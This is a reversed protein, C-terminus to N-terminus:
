EDDTILVLKGITSGSELAKQAEVVDELKYPTVKPSVLKGQDVLEILETALRLIWNTLIHSKKM